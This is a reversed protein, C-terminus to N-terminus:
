IVIMFSSIFALGFRYVPFKLFWVILCFALFYILYLFKKNYFNKRHYLSKYKNKNILSILIEHSYQHWYLKSFMYGIKQRILFEVKIVKLYKM